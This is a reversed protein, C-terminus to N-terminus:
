FAVEISAELRRLMEQAHAPPEPERNPVWVARWELYTSGDIDLVCSYLDLRTVVYCTWMKGGIRREAVQTVSALPFHRRVEGLVEARHSEFFNGNAPRKLTRLFLGADIAGARSFIWARKFLPVEGGLHASAVTKDAIDGPPASLSIRRGSLDIDHRRWDQDRSQSACGILCIAIFALATRKM